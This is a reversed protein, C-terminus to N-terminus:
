VYNKELIALLPWLIFFFQLFTASTAPAAASASPDKPVPVSGFVNAGSTNTTNLV